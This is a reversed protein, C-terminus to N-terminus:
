EVSPPDVQVAAPETEEVVPGKLAEVNVFARVHGLTSDV